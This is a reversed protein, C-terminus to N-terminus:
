IKPKKIVQIVKGNILFKDDPHIYIPPFDKTSDSMLVIQRNANDWVYRKINATDDIISLIIEGNHPVTDNPDIILYDGDEITKGGVAAKNMSIGNAQIAFVHKKRGLITASVKLYGEINTDAFITAPGCNAAGVIPISVLKTNKILGMTAREIRGAQKNIKILGKKELQSLHHKIKQPYKEGVLQGIERLTMRGLNKEGVLQIIKEQLTHM